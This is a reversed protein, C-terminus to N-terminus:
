NMPSTVPDYVRFGIYRITGSETTQRGCGALIMVTLLVTALSIMYKVRMM